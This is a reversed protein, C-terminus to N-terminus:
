QRHEHRGVAREPGVAPRGPRHRGDEARGGEAKSTAAQGGPDGHQQGQGAGRQQVRRREETAPQEEQGQQDLEHGPPPQPQPCRAVEPPNERLGGHRRDEEDGPQHDHGPRGHEGGHERILAHGHFRQRVREDLRHQIHRQDSEHVAQAMGGVQERDQDPQPGQGGQAM